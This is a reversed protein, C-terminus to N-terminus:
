VAKFQIQSMCIGICFLIIPILVLLIGIIIFITFVKTSYHIAQAEQPKVPNYWIDVEDGVENALKNSEPTKLQYEIGNVSFSYVYFSGGASDIDTQQIEILQGTTKMSCRDRKKKLVSFVIIFIVGVTLLLFVVGAIAIAM